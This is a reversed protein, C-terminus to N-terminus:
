PTRHPAPALAGKAPWQPESVVIQDYCALRAGTDAMARCQEITPRAPETRFLATWLAAVVVLACGAVVVVLAGIAVNLALPTHATPRGLHIPRFLM